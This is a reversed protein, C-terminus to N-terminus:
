ILHTSLTHYNRDMRAKYFRWILYGLGSMCLTFVIGAFFSAFSMGGSHPAPTPSPAATTGNSPTPTTPQQTSTTPTTPKASTTPTPQTTTPISTTPVTTTTSNPPITTPQVTTTAPAPTTGNTDPLNKRCETVNTSPPGAEEAPFQTVNVCLAGGGTTLFTCNKTSTANIHTEVCKICSDLDPHVQVGICLNGSDGSQAVVISAILLAVGGVSYVFSNAM